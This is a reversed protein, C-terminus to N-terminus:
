SLAHHIHSDHNVSFFSEARIVSKEDSITAHRRYSSTSGPGRRKAGINVYVKAGCERIDKWEEVQM